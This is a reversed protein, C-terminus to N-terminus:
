CATKLFENNNTLLGAATLPKLKFARALTQLLLELSNDLYALPLDTAM